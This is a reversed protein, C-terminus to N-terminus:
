GQRNRGVGAQNLAVLYSLAGMVLGALVPLPPLRWVTLALVFMALVVVWKGLTGLLLRAFAASAPQVGGAFAIAIALGNGAAMAAGGMAAALAHRADLALFALALLGGVAIEVAVARAAASRGAAIPDHV